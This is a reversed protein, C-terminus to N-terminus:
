ANISIQNNAGNRKVKNWSQPKFFYEISGWLCIVIMIARFIVIEYILLFFLKFKSTKSIDIDSQKIMVFITFDYAIYLLIGLAFALYILIGIHKHTIIEDSFYIIGTIMCVISIYGLILNEFIMFFSLKDKFFNKLLFKYHHKFADMFGKQWRIRQKFFDRWNNPVETFCIAKDNFVVKKNHKLAYRHFKITVDIDEGITKTFGNVKLMVERKFVGFAGSVVSLARLKAYSNKTIFFGKLYDIFQISEIINNPAIYFIKKGSFNKIGQSTIINGGTAIVDNDQLTLNVYDLADDKLISDADLTVLFEANTFNIAANLSDAKGGNLKDIVKMNPYKKSVYIKKIKECKLKLKSEDFPTDTLDLNQKLLELTNDRSGDNIFIVKLNPYHLNAFNNIASKIVVEENYCPVLMTINKFTKVKKLDFKNNKSKSFINWRYVNYLHLIGFLIILMFVGTFFYTM